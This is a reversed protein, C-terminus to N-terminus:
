KQGTKKAKGDEHDYAGPLSDALQEAARRYLNSINALSLILMVKKLDGSYGEADSLEAHVATEMKELNRKFDETEKEYLHLHSKYFQELDFNEKVTKENIGELVSKIDGISLAGKLHYILSILIIHEKSYKKNKVPFFLKGKAYNNIMTKTLIKDGESRKTGKFKNEFLQIVQDMYLDIGPIDEPQINQELELKALLQDLENM